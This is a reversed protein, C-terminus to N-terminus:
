DILLSSVVMKDTKFTFFNHVIQACPRVFCPLLM